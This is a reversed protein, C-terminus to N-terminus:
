FFLAELPVSQWSIYFLLLLFVLMKKVSIWFSLAFTWFSLPINFLLVVPFIMQKMWSNQFVIDRSTCVSLFNNGCTCLKPFSFLLFDITTEQEFNSLLWYWPLNCLYKSKPGLFCIIVPCYNRFWSSTIVFIYVFINSLPYKNRSQNIPM